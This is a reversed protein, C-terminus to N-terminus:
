RNLLHRASYGETLPSSVLAVQPMMELPGDAGATWRDVPQPPENVNVHGNERGDLAGMSLSGLRPAAYGPQRPTTDSALGPTAERLQFGSTDPNATKRRCRRVLLSWVLWAVLCILAGVGAAELSITMAEKKDPSHSAPSVVTLQVSSVYTFDADLNAASGAPAVCLKYIMPGSLSVDLFLEKPCPSPDCDFPIPPKFVQLVGGTPFLRHAAAGACQDDGAPLFVAHDGETVGNGGFVIAMHVDHTISLPRHIITRPPPPSAPPSRVPRPGCDECDTGYACSSYKSGPGGDDCDTDSSHFCTNLCIIGPPTAPPPPPAPPPPSLVPRPGCDKCDTGYACIPFRSGPGGDDCEGDTSYNCTNTCISPAAPPTVGGPPPPSAPPSRVPRPGCDECDSGYACFSYESGPGGDDCDGEGAYVCTNLCLGPLPPAPQPPLVPRPGCDECDSGYACIAFESGPGGDDCLADSNYFCTNLCIIGPPTAPPPPPAPPAPPPPSLVPRPGCDECDTGYACIAYKSGPGGDDCDTDSTHFCTNLCIIGPTPPPAPPPPPNPSPPPPNPPPPPTLPRGVGPVTSSCGTGPVTSCYTGCNYAM